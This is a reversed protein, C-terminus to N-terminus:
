GCVYTSIKEELKHFDLKTPKKPIVINPLLPQEALTMRRTSLLLDLCEFNCLCDHHTYIEVKFRGAFENKIMQILRQEELKSLNSVFFIQIPEEIQLLPTIIEFLLSYTSVLYDTEKFLPFRTKKYLSHVLEKTKEKLNQSYVMTSYVSSHVENTGSQEKNQFLQCYLHASYLSKELLQMDEKSIFLHKKNFCLTKFVEVSQFLQTKQQHHFKSFRTWIYTNDFVGDKTFLFLFLFGVEERRHMEKPLVSGLESFFHDFLQNKELNEWSEKSLCIYKKRNTREICLAIVCFLEKYEFESLCLHFFDAIKDIIKEAVLRTRGKYLWTGRIYSNHLIFLSLKRIQLENGMLELSRREISIGHLLLQKRFKNIMRWLSSESIYYKHSLQIISPMESFFIGILIQYNITNEIMHFILDELIPEFDYHLAYEKKGRCKLIIDKNPSFSAIDKEIFTLYKSITRSNIQLNSSLEEINLWTNQEHLLNIIKIKTITEKDFLEALQNVLFM